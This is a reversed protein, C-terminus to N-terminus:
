CINTTLRKLTIKFPLKKDDYFPSKFSKPAQWDLGDLWIVGGFNSTDIRPLDKLGRDFIEQAQVHSIRGLVIRLGISDRAETPLITAPMQQGSVIVSISAQRGKVILSLLQGYLQPALREKVPKAKDMTQTEAMLALLEDVILLINGEDPFKEAFTMDNEDFSDSNMQLYRDQMIQNLELLLKLATVGNIATKGGNNIFHSTASALFSNKGDITHVINKKSNALFEIVISKILSTKGSGTPGVILGMPQKKIDWVLKQTLPIKLPLPALCSLNDITLREDPSHAFTMRILSNELRTDELIWPKQTKSELFETLRRPIDEVISLSSQNGQPYYEIIDTEIGQLYRWKATKTLHKNDVDRKLLDLNESAIQLLHNMKKNKLNLLSFIIQFMLILLPLFALILFLPKFSGLWDTALSIIIWFIFWGGIFAIWTTHRNTKIPTSEDAIYTKYKTM